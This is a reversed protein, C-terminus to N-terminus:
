AFGSHATGLTQGDTSALTTLAGLNEQAAASTPTGRYAVNILLGDGTYLLPQVSVDEGSKITKVKDAVNLEMELTGIPDIAVQQDKGVSYWKPEGKGGNDSFIFSWNQGGQPDDFAATVTSLRYEGVPVTAPESGSLGFASGDRGVLTAHLDTAKGKRFALQVTGTGVLPELALRAGLPDSRLVYRAGELNLITAYLFQESAADWRGDRNLDIWLRDQADTMLGNGDGDMRRVSRPQGEMTVTGELYGAAAYGLTRGTAGLRFILARRTTKTVEGEVMAVDLPLRWLQERSSSGKTGAVRDRDDIKRDRNADVFLDVDGPGAEDLVVTVRISGPSGFRLQAYRRSTGRYSVKESVDEPKERSLVLARFPPHEFPDGPAPLVFRWTEGPPQPKNDGPPACALTLALWTLPVLTMM